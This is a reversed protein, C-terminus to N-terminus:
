LKRANNVICVGDNGEDNRLVHGTFEEPSRPIHPAIFNAVIVQFLDLKGFFKPRSVREDISIAKGRHKIQQRIQPAIKGKISGAWGTTKTVNIIDPCGWGTGHRAM